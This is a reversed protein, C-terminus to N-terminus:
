CGNLTEEIELCRCHTTSNIKLCSMATNHVAISFCRTVAAGVAFAAAATNTARGATVRSSLHAEKAEFWGFILMWDASTCRGDPLPEPLSWAGIQASASAGRVAWGGRRLSRGAPRPTAAALPLITGVLSTGAFSVSSIISSIATISWPSPLKDARSLIEGGGGRVGRM